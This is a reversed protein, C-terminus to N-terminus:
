FREDKIEPTIFEIPEIEKLFQLGEDNTNVVSEISIFPNEYKDYVVNYDLGNLQKKGNLSLVQEPTLPVAKM